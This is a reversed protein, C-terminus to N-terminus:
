KSLRASISASKRASWSHATLSPLRFRTCYKHAGVHRLLTWVTPEDIRRVRDPTIAAIVEGTLGHPLTVQSFLFALCESRRLLPLRAPQKQVATNAERDAPKDNRPQAEPQVGEGPLDAQLPIM